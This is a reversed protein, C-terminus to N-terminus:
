TYPQEGEVPRPQLRETAGEAQARDPIFRKMSVPQLEPKNSLSPDYREIDKRRAMEKPGIDYLESWTTGRVPHVGPGWHITPVSLVRWANGGAPCTAALDREAIARSITFRV